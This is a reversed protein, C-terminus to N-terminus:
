TSYKKYKIYKLSDGEMEEKFIKMMKCTNHFFERLKTVSQGPNLKKLCLILSSIKKKNNKKQHLDKFFFHLAFRQLVYFM